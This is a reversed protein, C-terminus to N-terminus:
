IIENIVFTLNIAFALNEIVIMAGLSTAEPCVLLFDNLVFQCQIFSFIADQLDEKITEGCDEIMLPDVHLIDWMVVLRTFEM